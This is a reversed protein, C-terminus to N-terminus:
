QRPLPLNLSANVKEAQQASATAAKIAATRVAPNNSIGAVSLDVNYQMAPVIWQLTSSGAPYSAQAQKLAGAAHMNFEVMAQSRFNKIADASPAQLPSSESVVAFIQNGAKAASAQLQAAYMRMAAIQGAKLAAAARYTELVCEPARSQNAVVLPDGPKMGASILTQAYASSRRQENLASSLDTAAEDTLKQASAAQKDITKLLSNITAARGAASTPSNGGTGDILVTVAAKLAAIQASDSHAMEAASKQAQRLAAVQHAWRVSQLQATHLALEAIQYHAQVVAARQNAAAASNLFGAGRKFDALTAPTVTVEGEAQLAMGRIDLAKAIGREHALVRGVAHVRKRAKAVMKMASQEMQRAHTLDQNYLHLYLDHQKQLFAMKGAFHGVQIAASDMSLVHQQLTMLSQSLQDTSEQAAALNVLGRQMELLGKFKFNLDSNNLATSLTAYAHRLDRSASPTQLYAGPNGKAASKAAMLQASSLPASISVPFHSKPHYRGADALLMSARASASQAQVNAQHSPSAGCGTLAAAVVVAAALGIAKAAGSWHIAADSSLLEGKSVAQVPRQIKSIV